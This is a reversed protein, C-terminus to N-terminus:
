NSLFNSLKREIRIREICDNLWLLMKNIVLLFLLIAKTKVIFVGINSSKRHNIKMKGDRRIRQPAPEHLLRDGGQPLEHVNRVGMLCRDRGAHRHAVRESVLHIDSGYQMKLDATLSYTRCIPISSLLIPLDM